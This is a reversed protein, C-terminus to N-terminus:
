YLEKNHIYRAVSEPVLDKIDQGNKVRDRIQTSSIDMFPMDVTIIRYGNERCKKLNELFSYGSAFSRNVAIFVNENKLEEARDWLHIYDLSDAGVIFMLECNQYKQRFYRMTDVTYCLGGKTIEYDSVEFCPKGEVSLKLMEFRHQASAICGKKHPPNGNPVFIVKELGAGNMAYEAMNLHAYHVPDFSGGFIGIKMFM